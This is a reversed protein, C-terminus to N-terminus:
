WLDSYLGKVYGLTAKTRSQGTQLRLNMYERILRLKIEVRPSDGFPITRALFRYLKEYDYNDTGVATFTEITELHGHFIAANREPDDDFTHNGLKETACEIALAKKLTEYHSTSESAHKHAWYGVFGGLGASIVVTGVSYKCLLDRIQDAIGRSRPCRQLANDDEM